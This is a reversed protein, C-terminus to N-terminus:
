IVNELIEGPLEGSNRDVNRKNKMNLVTRRKEYITKGLTKNRWEEIQQTHTEELARKILENTPKVTLLPLILIKDTIGSMSNEPAMSKWKGFISEIIDSSGIVTQCPSLKNEQAKVFELIRDIIKLANKSIQQKQYVTTLIKSTSQIRGEDGRTLGNHKIESEVETIFNAIEHWQM